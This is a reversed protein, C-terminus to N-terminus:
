DDPCGYSGRNLGMGKALPILAAVWETIDPDTCDLHRTFWVTGPSSTMIVM